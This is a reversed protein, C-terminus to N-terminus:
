KLRNFRYGLTGKYKEIADLMRYEVNAGAQAEYTAAKKIDDYTNRISTKAISESIGNAKAHLMAKIETFSALLETATAQDMAKAHMQLYEVAGTFSYAMDVESKMVGVKRKIAEYDVKEASSGVETARALAGNKLAAIDQRYKENVDAIKQAYEEKLARKDEAKAEPTLRYDADIASAKESYEDTLAEVKSEHASLSKYNVKKAIGEKEFEAAVHEDVPYIYGATHNAGGHNGNQIMYVEVQKM